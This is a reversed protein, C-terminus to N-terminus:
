RSEFVDPFRKVVDDRDQKWSDWSRHDWPFAKPEPLRRSEQSMFDDLFREVNSPLTGRRYKPHTYSGFAEAWYESANSAGYDSIKARFAAIQTHGHSEAAFRNKDWLSMWDAKMDQDLHHYYVSHGVEHRFTGWQSRNVTWRGEGPRAFDIDPTQGPRGGALWVNNKHQGTPFYRGVANNSISLPKRTEAFNSIEVGDLQWNRMAPYTEQLRKAEGDAWRAYEEMKATPIVERGKADTFTLAEDEDGLWDVTKAATRPPTAVAKAAAKTKRGVLVGEPIPTGDGMGYQQLLQGHGSKIKIQEGRRARNRAWTLNSKRSHSLDSENPPLPELDGGALESEFEHIRVEEETALGHSCRCNIDEGPEIKRGDPTDFPENLGRIQGAMAAHADRLRLDRTVIWKRKQNQPLEGRDQAQLWLQRQGENAARLTERRAITRSRLNLHMESYRELQSAVWDPTAGGSPVRVQFGPKNRLGPRAPFRTIIDGPRAMRLENYLNQVAISQPGNLGIHARIIRAAARPPIGEKLAKTIISRVAAITSDTVRTILQASNTQAWSVARPNMRDFSTLCGQLTRPSAVTM